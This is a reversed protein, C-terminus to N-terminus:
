GRSGSRRASVNGVWAAATVPASGYGRGVLAVEPRTRLRPDALCRMVADLAPHRPARQRRLTATSCGLLQALDRGCPRGLEVMAQIGLIRGLPRDISGRPDFRLASSIAAQVIDLSAVIPVQTQLPPVRVDAFSTLARMAAAPSVQLQGALWPLETWVPDVAGGLDRLTSWPWQWPDEVLGARLPNGIGYRVQRGAIARTMAPQPPEVDVRVGFRQTLGNLVRRLRTWQGVAAVLHLHDPMLVLSWVSEVVRRVHQFLWRGLEPETL